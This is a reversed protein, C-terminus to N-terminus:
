KTDKTTTTLLRILTKAVSAYKKSGPQKFTALCHQLLQVTTPLFKARALLSQQDPTTSLRANRRRQWEEETIDLENDCLIGDILDRCTSKVAEMTGESAGDKKMEERVKALLRKAPVFRSKRRYGEEWTEDEPFTVPPMGEPREWKKALLEPAVVKKPVPQWEGCWDDFTHTPWPDYVISSEDDDPEVQRSRLGRRCSGVAVGSKDLDNWVDERRWFRCNECRENDSADREPVLETKM